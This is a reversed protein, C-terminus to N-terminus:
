RSILGSEDAIGSSGASTLESYSNSTGFTAVVTKMLSVVIKISLLLNMRYLVTKLHMERQFAAPTESPCFLVRCTRVLPAPHSCFQPITLPM